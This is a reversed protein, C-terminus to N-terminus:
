KTPAEYNQTPNISPEKCQDKLTNFVEEITEKPFGDLKLALKLADRIAYTYYCSDTDITIVPFQRETNKREIIIKM